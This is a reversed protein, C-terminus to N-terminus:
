LKQADEVGPLCAKIKEVLRNIVFPKPVLGAGGKEKLLEPARAEEAKGSALILPPIERIPEISQYVKGLLFFLIAGDIMPMQFDFIFLDYKKKLALEFAYEPKHSPDVECKVAALLAERVVRLLAVDDDVMLIRKPEGAM